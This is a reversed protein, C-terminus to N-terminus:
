GGGEEWGSEGEGGDEGALGVGWGGLVECYGGVGVGVRGEVDEGEAEVGEGVAVQLAVEVVM